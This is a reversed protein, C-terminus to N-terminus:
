KWIWFVPKGGHRALGKYFTNWELNQGYMFDKSMRCSYEKIPVNAGCLGKELSVWGADTHSKKFVAVYRGSQKEFYLHKLKKYGNPCLQQIKTMGKPLYTIVRGLSSAKAFTPSFGVDQKNTFHMCAANTCFAHKIHFENYFYKLPVLIDSSPAKDKMDPKNTVEVDSGRETTAEPEKTEENTPEPEEIPEETPKPKPGVPCFDCVAQRVCITTNIEKLDNFRWAGFSSCQKSFHQIVMGEENMCIGGNNGELQAFYQISQESQPFSWGLDYNSKTTRQLLWGGRVDQTSLVGALLQNQESNTIIPFTSGRSKCYKLGDNYNRDENVHVCFGNAVLTEDDNCAAGSEYACLVRKLSGSTESGHFDDFKRNLQELVPTREMVITAEKFISQCTKLADFLSFKEVYSYYCTGESYVSRLPLAECKLKLVDGHHIRITQTISLSYPFLNCFLLIFMM